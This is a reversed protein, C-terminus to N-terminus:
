VPVPTQRPPIPKPVGPGQRPQTVSTDVRYAATNPQTMSQPTSARTATGNTQANTSGNAANNSRHRTSLRGKLCRKLSDRRFVYLLAITLVVLVPVVLLFFILLGDRLSYDIQAPGSDISGGRGRKNCNPPAWGNDCHCNFHDNCVGNSSCNRQADCKQSQDLVSSNLCKFDLCVKGPACVSGTKVYAPDPVDSGLRFDANMCTITDGEIKVVSVAAGAPPKNSDFICQIKGCMSNAVSCPVPRSGSYGCNGFENGITNVYSFCKQDAETAGSGFLQKCQYDFTQCRGEYCFATNGACPLGDMLYFDAPCFASEGGCFEPLDCPNVSPRCPTGSVKIQCNECCSGAACTSGKTLTCTAANCCKNSCEQPTGCDCEEGSELLGNGCRPVSIINDQSPQNRLCVGGGRLILSEFYSGSCDSFKTGGSASAAMICSGDCVCGNNDHNMGLNHGLEHAMVTSFYQLGNNSFVNIGGGNHVSCVTGVFAMGLVGGPYAGSRGVILQGVDHRLRPLLQTRRWQVFRGLVEGPNGDVDFPNGKDFIELGVLSVRINLQKYYTDLLNALQVMEERVATTNGKMFNFRQNDVVIALEVYKTQPLNRKKRLFMSLDAHHSQDEAPSTENALGCVFPESQSDKLLFLLHKKAESRLIPELGYSENGILIVGRLGECTSLAVLSDEYGEVHGQYHCYELKETHAKVKNKVDHSFVVFDNSLFDRNKTLHLLLENGNITISYTISDAHRDQFPTHSPNAHRRWRQHILRPKVLEFSKVHSTQEVVKYIACNTLIFILAYINRNM